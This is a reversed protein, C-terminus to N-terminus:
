SVPVYNPWNPGKGKWKTKFVDVGNAWATRAAADNPFYSNAANKNFTNNHYVLEFWIDDKHPVLFEDYFWGYVQDAIPCTEFRPSWECFVIPINLEACLPAVDGEIGYFSNNGNYFNTLYQQRTKSKANPHFSVSIGDIGSPTWSKLTGFDNGKYIKDISPSFVFRLHTGAGERIKDIIRSQASAFKVKTDPWVRYYNTQQMEHFGRGCFWKLNIERAAFNKAIRKGVVKFKDDHLGANIQDWAEHRSQGTGDTRLAVPIMDYVWCCWATNAIHERFPATFHGVSGTLWQMQSGNAITDPSSVPGGICGDWTQVRADSDGFHGGGFADIWSCNTEYDQWTRTDRTFYCPGGAWRRGSRLTLEKFWPVGGTVFDKLLMTAAQRQPDVNGGVVAIIQCTITRDNQAGSRRVTQMEVSVELSGAPLIKSGTPSDDFDSDGAESSFQYYVMMEFTSPGATRRFAFNVKAGEVADVLTQFVGVM